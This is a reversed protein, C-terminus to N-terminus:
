SRQLGIRLSEIFDKNAAVRCDESAVISHITDMCASLKGEENCVIYDYQDIDKSEEAARRMRKEVIELSETGRGLLRKKLVEVSPATIFILIADPYQSRIKMAGQVEIELIVVHGQALEDEVFQRPTGYYHDVYCAYEVFGNNDIMNLFDAETKFFYERGDVEGERPERTTASVSLRYGYTDALAKSVSGKGAGSFGSIVLLRGKKM